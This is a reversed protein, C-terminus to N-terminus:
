KPLVVDKTGGKSTTAHDSHHLEEMHIIFAKKTLMGVLAAKKRVLVIKVGLNRFIAQLQVAPTEPVVVMVGEDVCKSADLGEKPKENMFKSFYVKTKQGVFAGRALEGKLFRLMFDTHVYGLLTPDNSSQTVPYGGYKSTEFFKILSGLSGAEPHLCDIREDMVDRAYTNFTVEDPEHLFPYRRVLILYDYIGITFYDGVWKALMCVIMFPVILQLGGTLEFMIVVLSITVRCVGGLVAAAGLMAYMGPKIGNQFGPGYTHGPLIKAPAFHYEENLLWMYAGVVRGLAAGVLLSPIFLGSAAGTGFTFTMQVWRLGACLLLLQMTELSTNPTGDLNCVDLMYNHAKDLNLKGPEDMLEPDSCDHFLGRIAVNSLVRTSLIYYSTIATFFSITAVELVIHCKKRFPTGPARNISVMVNYHVFGTGIFGGVLGILVFIPYEIYHPPVEYPCNFMTLKGTGTPDIYALTMAATSAGVFARLMVRIPFVTSAEEYSFLVGGLPAGFAVAVGAACAASLLDRQKAENERYRKFFKAYFNSWCCAIHVLPGEKGCALGAGVSMALGIIKIVLTNGALAEPFTFGGLITKVEPIGSGRSMPAFAWTLMASIMAIITSIIIFYLYGKANPIYNWEPNGEPNPSGWTHWDNCQEQYGLFPEKCYGFRVGGYWEVCYEIFSGSCATSVGVICPIIWSLVEHQAKACFNSRQVVSTHENYDRQADARWSVTKFKTWDTLTLKRKNEDGEMRSTGNGLLAQNLALSPRTPPPPM